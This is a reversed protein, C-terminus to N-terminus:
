SATQKGRNRLKEAMALIKQYCENMENNVMNSQYRYRQFCSSVKSLTISSFSYFGLQSLLSFMNINYPDLNDSFTYGCDNPALLREHNRGYKAILKPLFNYLREVPYFSRLATSGANQSFYSKISYPRTVPINHPTFRYRGYWDTIKGLFINVTEENADAEDQLFDDYYKRIDGHSFGCICTGQDSYSVDSIYPLGEHKETSLAFKTEGCLLLWDIYEVQDYLAHYFDLMENYLAPFNVVRDELFRLFPQDYNDILFVIQGTPSTRAVARIFHMTLWYTNLESNLKVQINQEFLYSKYYSYIFSRFGEASQIKRDSFDLKLVTQKPIEMDMTAINLNRIFSHEVGNTFIFKITDLLLTKGFGWPRILIEFKNHKKYLNAIQSTKDIYINEGLILDSFSQHSTNEFFNMGKVRILKVQMRQQIFM